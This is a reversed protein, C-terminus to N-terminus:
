LEVEPPIKRGQSRELRYHKVPDILSKASMCHTQKRTSKYRAADESNVVYYAGGYSLIKGNTKYAHLIAAEKQEFGFKVKPSLKVTAGDYDGRMVVTIKKSLKQPQAYLSSGTRGTSSERIMKQGKRGKEEADKKKRAERRKKAGKVDLNLKFKPEEKPVESAKSRNIGKVSM